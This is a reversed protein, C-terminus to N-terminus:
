KEEQKLTCMTENCPELEGLKHGSMCMTEIAIDDDLPLAYQCVSQLSVFTIQM